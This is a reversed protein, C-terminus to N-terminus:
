IDEDTPQLGPINNKLFDQLEYGFFYGRQKPDLSEFARQFFDM